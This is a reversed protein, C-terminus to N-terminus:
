LTAAGAYGRGQSGLQYVNMKISNQASGFDTTQQAATYSATQSTATITRLTTTDLANRIDIEYSESSETQPVQQTGALDAITFALRDNRKWTITLNRSSDRSGTIQTPAYPKLGIATNTFTESIISKDVDFLPARYLLSTGIQDESLSIRQLGILGTLKVMYENAAHTGCRWATGYLGRLLGTLTYIYGSSQTATKFQLLEWGLTANGLAYLNSGTWLDADTASVPAVTVASFDVTLSVSYDLMNVNGGAGPTSTCIGVHASQNSAFYAMDRFASGGDSSMQLIGGRYRSTPGYFAAYFGANKHTSDLIPIDLFLALPPYGYQNVDVLVFSIDGATANSSYSASLPM